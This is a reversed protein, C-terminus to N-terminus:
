VIAPSSHGDVRGLKEVAFRVSVDRARQFHRVNRKWLAIWNNGLNLAIGFLLQWGLRVVMGHSDVVKTLLYQWLSFPLFVASVFNSLQLLGSVAIGPGSYMEIRQLARM